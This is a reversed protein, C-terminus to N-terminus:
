AFLDDAPPDFAEDFLDYREIPPRQM